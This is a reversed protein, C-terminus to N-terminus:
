RRGTVEEGGKLGCVACAYPSSLILCTGKVTKAYLIPKKALMDAFIVGVAWMDTVATVAM